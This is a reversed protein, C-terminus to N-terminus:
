FTSAMSGFWTSVSRRMPMLWSRSLFGLIGDQEMLLCQAEGCVILFHQKREGRIIFLRFAEIVRELHVLLIRELSEDLRVAIM